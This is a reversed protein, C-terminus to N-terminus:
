NRRPLPQAVATEYAREVAVWHDLGPFTRKLHAVLDPLGEAADSGAIWRYCEADIATKLEGSLKHAM